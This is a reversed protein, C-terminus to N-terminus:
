LQRHLVPYHVAAFGICMAMADDGIQSSVDFTPRNIQPLDLQRIIAAYSEAILIMLGTSRM